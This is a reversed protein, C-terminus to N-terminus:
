RATMRTLAQEAWAQQKAGPKRRRALAALLEARAASRDAFADRVARELNGVQEGALLLDVITRATTTVPLWMGSGIRHWAWDGAGLRAAHIRIDTRRSRQREQTLEPLTPASTALGLIQAASSHSVVADPVGTREGPLSGGAIALWAGAIEEFRDEANGLRYVGRRLHHLYGDEALDSLENRTVGALVAQAASVLGGQEAAIPSLASLADARAMSGLM